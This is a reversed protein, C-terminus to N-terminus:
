LPFRHGIIGQGLLSDVLPGPVGNGGVLRQVSQADIGVRSHAILVDVLAPLWNLLRNM